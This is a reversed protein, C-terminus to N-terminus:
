LKFSVFNDKKYRGGEQALCKLIIMHLQAWKTHSGAAETKETCFVFSALSLDPPLLTPVPLANFPIQLPENTLM